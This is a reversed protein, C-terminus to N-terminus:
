ECGRLAELDAAVIKELNRRVKGIEWDWWAVELLAQITEDSFRKKLIKAPNGGVVAYPPVDSVVVSKSAV